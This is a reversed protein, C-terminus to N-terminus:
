EAAAGKSFYHAFEKNIDDLDNLDSHERYDETNLQSPGSMNLNTFSAIARSFYDTCGGFGIAVKPSRYNKQYEEHILEINEMYNIVNLLEYKYYANRYLKFAVGFIIATAAIYYIFKTNRSQGM